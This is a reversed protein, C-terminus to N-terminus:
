SEGDGGSGGDVDGDGQFVSVSEASVFSGDGDGVCEVVELFHGPGDGGVCLAHVHADDACFEVGRALYVGDGRLHVVCLSM